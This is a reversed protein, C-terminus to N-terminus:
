IKWLVNYFIIIFYPIVLGHKLPGYDHSLLVIVCKHVFIVSADPLSIARYKDTLFEYSEIVHWM